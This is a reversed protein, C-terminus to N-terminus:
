EVCSARRSEPISRRTQNVCGASIRASEWHQQTPAAFYRTRRTWGGPDALDKATFARTRTASGSWKQPGTRPTVLRPPPISWGVPAAATASPSVRQSPRVMNSRCAVTVTVLARSPLGSWYSGEKSVNTSAAAATAAVQSLRLTSMLMSSGPSTLIVVAPQMSEREQPVPLMITRSKGFQM